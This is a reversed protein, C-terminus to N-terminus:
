VYSQVIKKLAEPDNGELEKLKECDKYVHFTPLSTVGVVSATEDNVDVNVRLFLISPNEKCLSEFVPSIKKCPQCWDAYFDVIIVKGKEERMIGLFQEYTDVSTSMRKYIYKNVVRKLCQM